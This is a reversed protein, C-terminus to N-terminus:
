PPARMVPGKASETGKGCVGRLGRVVMMGDAAGPPAYEGAVSSDGSPRVSVAEVVALSDQASRVWETIQIDRLPLATGSIGRRIPAAGAILRSTTTSTVSSAAALRM